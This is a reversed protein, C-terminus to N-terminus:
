DRNFSKLLTVYTVCTVHTISTILMVLRTNAPAPQGLLYVCFCALLPGLQLYLTTSLALHTSVGTTQIYM